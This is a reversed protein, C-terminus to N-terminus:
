SRTHLHQMARDLNGAVIDPLEALAAEIGTELEAVEEQSPRKLVHNTVQSKDGPHGIGLRLRLFGNSGLQEISSRLGNHGGHGGGSKLKVVGVPLDLEDHVVLIDTPAIKYYAALAAIAQGSRNMFTAPKLLWVEDGGVAIKCVEGHFKSERRFQGGCAVAAADVFLFGVNHRTAEYEGGPNGLGAILKVRAAM